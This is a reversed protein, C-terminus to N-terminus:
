KSAVLVRGVRMQKLDYALSKGCDLCVVYTALSGKAVPTIPRTLRRHACRFVLNVITNFM